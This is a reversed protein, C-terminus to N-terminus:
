YKWNIANSAIRISHYCIRKLTLTTSGLVQRQLITGNLADLGNDGNFFNSDIPVSLAERVDTRNLWIPMADSPCPYDNLAGGVSLNAFEGIICVWNKLSETIFIKNIKLCSSITLASTM